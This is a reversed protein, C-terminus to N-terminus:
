VNMSHKFAGVDGPVPMCTYSRVYGSKLKGGRRKRILVGRWPATVPVTLELGRELCISQSSFYSEQHHQLPRTRSVDAGADELDQVSYM